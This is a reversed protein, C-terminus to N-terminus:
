KQKEWGLFRGYTRLMKEVLKAREILWAQRDADILLSVSDHSVSGRQPRDCIAIRVGPLIEAPPAKTVTVKRCSLDLGLASIDATEGSTTVELVATDSAPTTSILKIEVVVARQQLTSLYLPTETALEVVLGSLHKKKM